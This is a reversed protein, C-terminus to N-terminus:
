ASRSLMRPLGRGQGRYRRQQARVYRCRQREERIQVELSELARVVREHASRLAEHQAPTLPVTIVSRMRALLRRRRLLCAWVGSVTGARAFREMERTLAVLAALYSEPTEVHAM